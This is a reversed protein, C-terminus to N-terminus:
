ADFFIAGNLVEEEKERKLYDDIVVETVLNNYEKYADPLARSLSIITEPEDKVSIQLEMEEGNDTAVWRYPIKRYIGKSNKLLPFPNLISEMDCDFYLCLKYVTESTINNINKKENYIENLVTYPIGTEHSIRYLSKESSNVKSKYYENM